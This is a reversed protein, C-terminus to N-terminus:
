LVKYFWASSSAVLRCIGVGFDVLLRPMRRLDNVLRERGDGVILAGRRMAFLNFATSLGTFAMSLLISRRLEPTGRLAHLAFELTHSVAPLVVVTTLTAAWVPRVSAFAETIAGYFGSTSARFVLEAAFAGTAARWGASVNAAFFLTARIAASTVAAKWNWCQWLLERPHRALLALTEIAGAHERPLPAEGAKLPRGRRAASWRLPPWKAIPATFLSSRPRGGCRRPTRVHRRVWRAAGRWTTCWTCRPPAFPEFTAPLASSGRPTQVCTNRQGARM